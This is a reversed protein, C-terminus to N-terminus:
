PAEPARMVPSWTVGDSVAFARHVRRRITWIGLLLLIVGAGRMGNLALDLEQTRVAFGPDRTELSGFEQVALPALLMVIWAPITWHWIAKSPDPVRGRVHDVARTRWGVFGLLYGLIAVFGAFDLPDSHGLLWRVASPLPDGDLLYARIFLANTAAAADYLFAAVATLVLALTGLEWKRPPRAVPLFSDTM